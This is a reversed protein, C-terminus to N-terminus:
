KRRARKATPAGSSSEAATPAVAPEDAPEAAAEDSAAAASAEAPADGAPEDLRRKKEAARQLRSVTPKAAAQTTSSSSTSTSAAASDPEAPAVTSAPSSALAGGTDADAQAATVYKLTAQVEALATKLAQVEEELRAQKAKTAGSADQLATIDTGHQAVTDKLEVIAEALEDQENAEDDAESEAQEDLPIFDM